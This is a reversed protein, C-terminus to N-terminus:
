SMDMEDDGGNGHQQMGPMLQSSQVAAQGQEQEQQGLVESFLADYDADDSWLSTEDFDDEKMADDPMYELLAELEKGEDRLFEEVEAEPMSSQMPLDYTEEDEDEEELVQSAALAAREAEWARQRQMFDLRMM